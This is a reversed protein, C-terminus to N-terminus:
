NLKQISELYKRTDHIVYNSPGFDSELCCSKIPGNFCWPLQYWKSTHFKCRCYPILKKLEEDTLIETAVVFSMIEEHTKANMIINLEYQYSREGKGFDKTFVGYEYEKKEDYQECYDHYEKYYDYCKKAHNEDNVHPFSTCVFKTYRQM